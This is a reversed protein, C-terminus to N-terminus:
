VSAAAAKILDAAKEAIMITPANTNGGILTPMISADVVRLGAIGHVRLSPDVVAQADTGMRCTGVPHYVTDSRQRLEQRIGEDTSDDVAYLKSTIHRKLPPADMIRRTLRYAKVMTELDREDEYFRPDIRPAALPDSSALTVSGRSHPRLLCVHCSFGHGLHRKRSHDDVMGVVFHLQIDPKDMAPDTRLFGGAEAFNSTVMGRGERKYRRIEKALRYMGGASVGFLDLSSSRLSFTYDIHDQLNGGVGPLHHVVAIGHKGLDVANGIGSLMLLQPSGFAGNCVIVERAATARKPAGNERYVIGTARKGDLLIRTAIAGTVITLNPRAKHPELYARAASWRSGDKQTVQYVGVGEQQAGNFDDTSPLQCEAAADLFYKQFPNGTRSNAVNLPGSIGHFADDLVENGESKRFYALVDNYAWGTNGLSAWHDYDWRHGRIYVMANIASSGGLAKGRPQYGNRGNLGPQPVTEFAWNNFAKTPLMLAAGIPTRVMWNDGSGGAELLCVKVNPNESLRSALVCGASGGGAIVYDFARETESM